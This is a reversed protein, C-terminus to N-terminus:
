RQKEFLPALMREAWDETLRLDDYRSSAGDIDLFVGSPSVGRFEAEFSSWVLAGTELNILRIRIQAEDEPINLFGLLLGLAVASGRNAASARDGAVSLAMVYPAKLRARLRRSQDPSLLPCEYLNERRYREHECGGFLQAYAARLAEDDTLSPNLAVPFRQKSVEAGRALDPAVRGERDEGRPPLPSACMLPTSFRTVRIGRQALEALLERAGDEALQRSEAQLYHNFSLLNRHYLCGEAVVVPPEAPLRRQAQEIPTEAIPRGACGALLVLLVAPLRLRIM